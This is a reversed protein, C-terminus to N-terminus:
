ELLAFKVFNGWLTFINQTGFVIMIKIILDRITNLVSHMKERSAIVVM